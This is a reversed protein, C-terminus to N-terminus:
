CRIPAPACRWCLSALADIAGNFDRRLDEYREPLDRNIQCDLRNSALQRLSDRLIAAAQEEQDARLRAQAGPRAAHRLRPRPPRHLRRKRHIRGARRSRGAGANRVPRDDGPFARCHGAGAVMVLAILLLGGGSLAVAALPPILEQWTLVSGAVGVAACVVVAWALSHLKVAIPAQKEFWDFMSFEVAM